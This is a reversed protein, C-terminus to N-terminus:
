LNDIESYASLNVRLPPTKRYAKNLLCNVLTVFSMSKSASLIGLSVSLILSTNRSIKEISYSSAIRNSKFENFIRLIVSNLSYWPTFIDM